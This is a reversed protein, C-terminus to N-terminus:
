CCQKLVVTESFRESKRRMTSPILTSRVADATIIRNTTGLATGLVGIEELRYISNNREDSVATRVLRLMCSSPM